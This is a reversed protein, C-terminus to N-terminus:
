GKLLFYLVIKTEGSENNLGGIIEETEKNLSHSTHLINDCLEHFRKPSGKLLLKFKYPLYLKNTYAFKSKIDIKDVRGSIL